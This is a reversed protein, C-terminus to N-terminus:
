HYVIEHGILTVWYTTYWISLFQIPKRITYVDNFYLLVWHRLVVNEVTCMKKAWGTYYSILAKLTQKISIIIASPSVGEDQTLVKNIITAM